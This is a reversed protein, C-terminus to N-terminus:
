ATKRLIGALCSLISTVILAMARWMALAVPILVVPIRGSHGRRQGHAGDSQRQRTRGM